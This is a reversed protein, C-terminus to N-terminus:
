GWAILRGEHFTPKAKKSWRRHVMPTAKIKVHPIWTAASELMLRQLELAAEHARFEPGELIFEDHVFNVMRFGFLPSASDFCAQCILWGAHKAMDAALGSFFTNCTETYARLDFMGRLRGSYLQEALPPKRKLIANVMTFYHPMEPWTQLWAKRAKQALERSIRVGYNNLAYAMFGDAGLGGQFGFNGIKGVQRANDIVCYDCPCKGSTKACEIGPGADYIAKCQQYDRGLIQAAIMLHPDLGVNLADGLASRGLMVYCCEAMTCLEAGGYDASIFVTIPGGCPCRQRVIDAPRPVHGCSPCRPTFCERDGGKRKRNQINPGSSGTRGNEQLAEFRSHIPTVIGGELEPIDKSLTGKLKAYAAYKILPHNERDHTNPPVADDCSQADTVPVPNKGETMPVPLGQATYAQVILAHARKTNRSGPKGGAVGKIKNGWLLGHRQLDAAVKAFTDGTTKKLVAVAEADTRIGWCSCWRLWFAGRTQRFQDVLYAPFQEQHRFLGMTARADDKPYKKAGEPWADLPYPILEGYRLRWTSKDLTMGLVKAALDELNYKSKSTGDEDTYFKRDGRAVDLLKERIETDVIRNANYAAFILPIFRPDHAMMVLMDFAISHGVILISPDQIVWGFWEAATTHHFLDARYDVDSVSVCALPPAQRGPSILATETDFSIPIM